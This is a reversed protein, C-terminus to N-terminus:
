VKRRLENLYASMGDIARDTPEVLSRRRDRTDPHRRLFGDQELREIHRLSTTQPADASVCLDGVTRPRGEHHAIFLELLMEFKPDSMVRAGMLKNGMLRTRQITRALAVNIAAPCGKTARPDAKARIDALIEARKVAPIELAQLHADIDHYIPVDSM